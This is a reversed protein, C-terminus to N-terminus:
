GHRLYSMTHGTNTFCRGRNPSRPRQVFWCGPIPHPHPPSPAPALVLVNLHRLTMYFLCLVAGLCSAFKAKMIFAPKLFKIFFLANPRVILRGVRPQPVEPIRRHSPDSVFGTRAM